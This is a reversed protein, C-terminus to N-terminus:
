TQLQATLAQIAEQVSLFVHDNGLKAILGSRAAAAQAHPGILRALAVDTQRSRLEGITAQLMQSGTYDVDTMASAEIVLLKVPPRAHAVVALLRRRIFDANTFNVPASPAFVVIGPVEVVEHEGTPPWWVTTGRVQFLQTAPPWMVLYVGHALSLMIALLMGTQIPLVIVLLAGAIVFNIERGSYRAIKLMDRLRFIRLGVFTLVGALAAQPVYAALRAFFAVIVAVVAVALLGSLQSHGGAGQVVATRPPSSNVPFAGYLGALISGLGIAVFDSSVDDAADPDSPFSRVVVSTQLTCVAAVVLGLPAIALLQSLEPVQPLRLPPLAISLSGLVAVGRARLDFGAVALGAGILGILAGPIRESVRAAALTVSLVAIGLACTYPNTSGARAAIDILQRLLPGAPSTIGLLSPLQGIIIHFSIGALIGTTVPVSLLDAIWGARAIGVTLLIAGVCLALLAALGHYAAGGVAALAGLSAAFIPATTSDAGVSVFRNRGVVAFALTGAAFAYLGVEPPFGALKATALQEPLAIAALV